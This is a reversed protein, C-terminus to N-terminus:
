GKEEKEREGKERERREGGEKRGRDIGGGGEREGKRGRGKSHYTPPHNTSLTEISIM